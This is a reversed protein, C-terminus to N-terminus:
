GKNSIVQVILDIVCSATIPTKNMPGQKYKIVCCNQRESYQQLNVPFYLIEKLSPHSSTGTRILKSEKQSVQIQIFRLRVNTVYIVAILNELPVEINPLRHMIFNTKDLDILKLPCYNTFSSSSQNFKRAYLHASM